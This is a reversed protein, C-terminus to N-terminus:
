VGLVDPIYYDLAHMSGNFLYPQKLCTIVILLVIIFVEIRNLVEQMECCM